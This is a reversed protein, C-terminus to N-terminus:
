SKLLRTTAWVARRDELTEHHAWREPQFSRERLLRKSGKDPGIPRPRAFGENLAIAALSIIGSVLAGGVATIVSDM